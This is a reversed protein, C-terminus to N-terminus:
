KLVELHGNAKVGVYINDINVITSFNDPDNFVFGLLQDGNVLETFGRNELPVYFAIGSDDRPIGYATLNGSPHTIMTYRSEGYDTDTCAVPTTKVQSSSFLAHKVNSCVSLLLCLALIIVLQFAYKHVWTDCYKADSKHESWWATISDAFKM